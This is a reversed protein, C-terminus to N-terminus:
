ASQIIILITEVLYTFPPTPSAYPQGLLTEMATPPPPAAASSSAQKADPEAADQQAHTVAELEEEANREIDSTADATATM